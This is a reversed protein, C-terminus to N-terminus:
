KGETEVRIVRGDSIFVMNYHKTGKRYAWRSIFCGNDIGVCAVKIETKHLPEGCRELVSIDTDGELVLDTGCRMAHVSFSTCIFVICLGLKRMKKGKIENKDFM